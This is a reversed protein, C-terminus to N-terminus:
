VNRQIIKLLGDHVDENLEKATMRTKEGDDFQLFYKETIPNYDTVTCPYWAAHPKTGDYLITLRAGIEDAEAWPTQDLVLTSSDRALGTSSRTSRTSRTSSM